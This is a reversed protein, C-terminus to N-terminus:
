YECTILLALGCVSASGNRSFSTFQVLHSFTSWSSIFLLMAVAPRPASNGDSAPNCGLAAPHHTLQVWLKVGRGVNIIGMRVNSCTWCCQSPLPPLLMPLASHVVRASPYCVAGPCTLFCVCKTPLVDVAFLSVPFFPTYLPQLQQCSNRIKVSISNNESHSIM